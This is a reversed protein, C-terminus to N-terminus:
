DGQMPRSAACLQVYVRMGVRRARQLLASEFSPIPQGLFITHYERELTSSTPCASARLQHTLQQLLAICPKAPVSKHKLLAGMLEIGLLAHFWGNTEDPTSSSALCLAAWQPHRSNIGLTPLHSEVLVPSNSSCAWLALQQFEEVLCRLTQPQNPMLAAAATICHAAGSCAAVVGPVYGAPKAPHPVCKLLRFLTADCSSQAIRSDYFRRVQHVSPATKQQMSRPLSKM